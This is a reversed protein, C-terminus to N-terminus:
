RGELKRWGFFRHRGVVLRRTQQEQRHLIPLVRGYELGRDIAPRECCKDGPSAWWGIGRPSRSCIRDQQLCKVDFGRNLSEQNGFSHGTRGVPIQDNLTGRTQCYRSSRIRLSYRQNMRESAWAPTAFATRLTLWLLVLSLAAM